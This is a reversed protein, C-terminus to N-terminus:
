LRKRFRVTDQDVVEAGDKKFIQIARDNSKPATFFYDTVGNVRMNMEMTRHLLTYSAQKYTYDPVVILHRVELAQEVHIVAVIKTRDDEDRAVYTTNGRQGIPALTAGPEWRKM